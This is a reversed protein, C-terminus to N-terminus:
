RHNLEKLANMQHPSSYNVHGLGNLIDDRTVHRQSITLRQLVDAIVALSQQVLAPHLVLAPDARCVHSRRQLKFQADDVGGEVREVALGRLGCAFVYRENGSVDQDGRHGPTGQFECQASRQRATIEDRKNQGEAKFYAKIDRVFAKAVEPRLEIRLM